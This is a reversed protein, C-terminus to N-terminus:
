FSMWQGTHSRRPAGCPGRGRERDRELRGQLPPSEGGLSMATPERPPRRLAAPPSGQTVSPRFVRDTRAGRARRPDCRRVGATPRGSSHEGAVCSASPAPDLFSWDWAIGCDSAPGGARRHVVRRAARDFPEARQPELERAIRPHHPRASWNMAALAAVAAGIGYIAIGIAGGPAVALAAGLVAAGGIALLGASLAVLAEAVAKVATPNASAVQAISTM